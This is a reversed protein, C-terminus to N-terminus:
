VEMTGEVRTDWIRLWKCGDTRSDRENEVEADM